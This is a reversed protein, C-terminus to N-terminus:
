IHLRTIMTINMQCSLSEQGVRSNNTVHSGTGRGLTLDVDLRYTPPTPHTYGSRSNDIGVRLYGCILAPQRRLLTSPKSLHRILKLSETM